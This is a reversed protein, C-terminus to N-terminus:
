LEMVRETEEASESETRQPRPTKAHYIKAKPQPKTAGRRPTVFEGAKEINLDTLIVVETRM